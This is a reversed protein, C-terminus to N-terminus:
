KLLSLSDSLLHQSSSAFTPSSVSNCVPQTHAHTLLSYIHMHPCNWHGRPTATSIGLPVNKHSVLINWQTIKCGHMVGEGQGRLYFVATGLVVIDICLTGHREVCFM